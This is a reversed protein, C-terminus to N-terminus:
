LGKDKHVKNWEIMKSFGYKFEIKPSWGTDIRFKSFDGVIGHMDGPTSGKYHVKIKAPFRSRILDVIDAVTTKVSSCINYVNFNNGNRIENALTLSRVVDDVHVFDRFREKSGKVVITGNDIAQSLFISAMGQKMNQMNQGEGYINFLRLATCRVGLDSYIKMYMESALKGVAYFSKPKCLTHEDTLGQDGAAIGSGYVSMTSAYIFSRCEFKLCYQLLNITSKVNSDLDVLPQEFSVEGSSQGAIHFIADFKFAELERITRTQALDGKIFKVENPINEAYGTSLDDVTIVEHGQRILERSLKSGIFGAGGTVLFKSM